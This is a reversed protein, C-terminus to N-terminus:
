ALEKARVPRDARQTIAQYITPNGRDFYDCTRNNKVWDPRAAALDGMVDAPNGSNLFYLTVYEPAFVTGDAMKIEAGGGKFRQAGNVSKLSLLDPIHITDYWKNFDADRGAHPKTYMIFVGKDSKAANAPNRREWMAEYVGREGARFYSPLRGSSVWQPRATALADLIAQRSGTSLFYLTVYRPTHMTGDKMRLEQGTGNLKFRQAGNIVDIKLLDPIHIDNYWTNFDAEDKEGVDTYVIFVGKDSM